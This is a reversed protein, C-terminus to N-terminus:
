CSGYLSEYLRNRAARLRAYFGSEEQNPAYTKIPQLSLMAEAADAQSPYIGLAACASIWAGQSTAEGSSDVKLTKGFMSAQIRNFLGLGTLGGSAHVALAPRTLSELLGLNDAMEAAIGELISRGLDGRGTDLSLGHFCGRAKPNFHPAGSGKFHPLFLVGSSGPPAAEAEANAQSFDVQGFAPKGQPYFNEAFWRWIVGSAPMGAEVVYSGPVASANCFVRMEPDLVPKPSHALLYSGTGTNAVVRDPSYLGMGLAACQQDGGASMVPTGAAIGTRRAMSPCTRGALSGAGVMECLISKDIGFLSVLGDDWEMRELNLLNTRSALSPDTHIEGTLLYLVYDHIGAMKWTRSYVEPENDKIWLMKPASMVPTVKMGCISYIKPNESELASCIAQTRLDQWMIAPRLPKGSSDLPIVSSRQSTLSVAEISLGLESARLACETLLSEVRTEWSSADQEVRGDPYHLPPNDRRALHLSAGSLDYLTARISTTGIDVVVISGQAM